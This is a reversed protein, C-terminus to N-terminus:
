WHGLCARRYKGSCSEQGFVAPLVPRSRPRFPQTFRVIIVRAGYVGRFCEHLERLEHSFDRWTCLNTRFRIVSHRRSSSGSSSAVTTTATEPPASETARRRASSSSERVFFSLFRTTAACKLWLSRPSSDSVSSR